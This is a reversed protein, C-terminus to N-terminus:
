PVPPVTRCGRQLHVQPIKEVERCRTSDDSARTNNCGLEMAAPERYSRRGTGEASAGRRTLVDTLLESAHELVRGTRESDALEGVAQSAVQAAAHNIQQQVRLELSSVPWIARRGAGCRSFSVSERTTSSVVPVGSRASTMSRDGRSGTRDITLRRILNKMVVTPVWSGLRRPGLHRVRVLEGELKECAM